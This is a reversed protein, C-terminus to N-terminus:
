IMSEEFHFTYVPLNIFVGRDQLERWQRGTIVEKFDSLQIMKFLRFDEIDKDSKATNCQVCALNLNAIDNGGGLSKPHIHATQPSLSKGCYACRAACKEFVVMKKLKSIKKAMVHEGARRLFLKWASFYVNMASACVMVLLLRASM